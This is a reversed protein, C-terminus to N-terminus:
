SALKMFLLQPQLHKSMTEKMAKTETDNNNSENQLPSSRTNM